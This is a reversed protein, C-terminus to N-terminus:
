PHDRQIPIAKTSTGTKDGQKIILQPLDLLEEIRRLADRIALLAVLTKGAGEGHGSQSRLVPLHCLLVLEALHPLHNVDHKSQLVLERRIRCGLSYVRYVRFSLFLCAHRDRRQHNHKGRSSTCSCAAALPSAGHQCSM